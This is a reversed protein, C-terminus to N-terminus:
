LSPIIIKRMFNIISLIRYNILLIFRLYQDTIFKIVKRKPIIVITKITVYIEITKEYTKFFLNVMDNKFIADIPINVAM